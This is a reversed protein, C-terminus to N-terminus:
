VRQLWTTGWREIRGNYLLVCAGRRYKEGAQPSYSTFLVLAPAPWQGKGALVGQLRQILDSRLLVRSGPEYYVSEIDDDQMIREM